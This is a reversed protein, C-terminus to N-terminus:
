TSLAQAHKNANGMMYIIHKMVNMADETMVSKADKDVNLADVQHAHIRLFVFEMQIQEMNVVWAVVLHIALQVSLLAYEVYKIQLIWIIVLSVNKYVDIEVWIFDLFVRNVIIFMILKVPWVRILAHSVFLLWKIRLISKCKYLPRVIVMQVNHSANEM